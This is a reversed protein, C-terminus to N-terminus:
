GLAPVVQIDYRGRYNDEAWRRAHDGYLFAAVVMEGVLVAHWTPVSPSRETSTMATGRALPTM